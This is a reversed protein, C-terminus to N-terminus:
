KLFYKRIIRMAEKEDEACVGCFTGIGNVPGEYKWKFRKLYKGADDVVSLTLGKPIVHLTLGNPLQVKFAPAGKFTEAGLYTLTLEGGYNRYSYTIEDRKNDRIAFSLSEHKAAGDVGSEYQAVRQEQGYIPTLLFPILFLAFMLASLRKRSM